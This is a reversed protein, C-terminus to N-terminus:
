VYRIVEYRNVNHSFYCEVRILRNLGEGARDSREGEAGEVTAGEDTFARGGRQGFVGCAPLALLEFSSGDDILAERDELRLDGVDLLGNRHPGLDFVPEVVEVLGEGGRDFGAGFELLRDHGFVM